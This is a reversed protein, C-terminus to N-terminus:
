DVAWWRCQRAASVSVADEFAKSPNHERVVTEIKGRVLSSTTKKMEHVVDTWKEFREQSREM